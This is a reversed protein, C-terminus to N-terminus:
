RMCGKANRKIMDHADKTGVFFDTKVGKNTKYEVVYPQDSYPSDTGTIIGPWWNCEWGCDIVYVADGRGLASTSIPLMLAAGFALGLIFQKM